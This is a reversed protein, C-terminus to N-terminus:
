PCADLKLLHSHTKNKYVKGAIINKNKFDEQLKRDSSCLLRTNSAKALALIHIDNSKLVDHCKEIDKKATMVAKKSIFKAKGARKGVLLYRMTERHSQKIETEITKDDSYVFKGSNNIWRHVPKMDETNKFFDTWKHADLIM